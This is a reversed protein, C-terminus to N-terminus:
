KLAMLSISFTYQVHFTHQKETCSNDLVNKHLNCELHRCFLMHTSLNVKIKMLLNNPIKPGLFLNHFVHIVPLLMQQHCCTESYSMADLVCM